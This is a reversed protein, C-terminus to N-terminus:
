AMHAPEPQKDRIASLLRLFDLPKNMIVNPKLMALRKLRYNESVATVVAVKAASESMRLAELIQEGRGDPLNLDLTIIDPQFTELATMAEAVTRASRVEYEFHGLLHEMAVSAVPEDEVILVRTRGAGSGTLFDGTDLGALQDFAAATPSATQRNAMQTFGM